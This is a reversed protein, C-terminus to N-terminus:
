GSALKDTKTKKAMEPPIGIVKWSIRKRLITRRCNKTVEGMRREGLGNGTKLNRLHPMHQNNFAQPLQQDGEALL